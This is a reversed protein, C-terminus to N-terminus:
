WLGTEPIAKGYYFLITNRLSFKPQPKSTLHQFDIENEHTMQKWGLTIKKGITSCSELRQNEKEVLSLTEKCLFFMIQPKLSCHFFTKERNPASETKTVIYNTGKNWLGRKTKKWMLFFKKRFSFSNWHLEWLLIISLTNQNKPM